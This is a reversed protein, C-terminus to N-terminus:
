KMRGLADYPWVLGYRQYFDRTSSGNGLPMIQGLFSAIYRDQAMKVGRNHKSQWDDQAGHQIKNILRRNLQQMLVTAEPSLPSRPNSVDGGSFFVKEQVQANAKIRYVCMLDYDSTYWHVKGRKAFTKRDVVLGQADTKDKIASGKAPLLGIYGRSEPNPCRFVVLLKYEETFTRLARVDLAHFGTARAIDLDAQTAGQKLADADMVGAALEGFRQRSADSMCSMFDWM